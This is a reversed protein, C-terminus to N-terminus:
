CEMWGFTVGRIIFLRPKARESENEQDGDRKRAKMREKTLEGNRKSRWDRVSEWNTYRVM